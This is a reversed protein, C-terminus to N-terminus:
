EKRVENLPKPPQLSKVFFRAPDTSWESGGFHGAILQDSRIRIVWCVLGCSLIDYQRPNAPPQGDFFSILDAAHRSPDPWRYHEAFHNHGHVIAVVNYPALLEYLARRQKLTWWNWDNLSFADFGYHQALIVPEGSTGVRRALYDKLFSFAGQPDNWSGPGAPGFKFPEAGDPSDAPCLNLFVGHVGEWNVAYHLGNTSLATLLGAKMLTRNRAVLGQRQSSAAADDHNGVIAFVPVSREGVLFGTAPLLAEFSRWQEQQQAKERSGDTLDGLVLVGRPAAVPGLALGDFAPKDPFPQGAVSRMSEVNAKAKALTQEKTVPPNAKLNEAGIHVDSIVFFTFDRAAKEAQAGALRASM